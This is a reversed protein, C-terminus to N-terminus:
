KHEKRTFYIFRFKGIQLEDGIHLHSNVILKANLYTGNLSGEDAISYGGVSYGEHPDAIIKAHSRSVTVDDLFIECKPDRGIRTIASNVLFRAGKNPGAVSLLMSSNNPLASIIEFEERTLSAFLIELDLLNPLARIASLHLTSTLDQEPDNASDSM